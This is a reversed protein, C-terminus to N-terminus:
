RIRFLINKRIVFLNKKKIIMIFNKIVILIKIIKTVKMLGIFILVFVKKGFSNVYIKKPNQKKTKQYTRQHYKNSSTINKSIASHNLSQINKCYKDRTFM